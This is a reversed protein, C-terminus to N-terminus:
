AGTVYEPHRRLDGLREVQKLLCDLAIRTEPRCEGPRRDATVPQKIITPALIALAVTSLPYVKCPAGQVYRAVIRDDQGISAFGQGHEPFVDARHRCQGVASEREVRVIRAAPVAAAVDPQCRALEVDCDLMIFCRKTETRASSDARCSYSYANRMEEAPPKILCHRSEVKRDLFIRGARSRILKKCGTKRM